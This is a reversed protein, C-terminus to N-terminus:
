AILEQAIHQLHREIRHWSHQESVLRRASDVLRRRLEANGLLRVCLRAFEVPDDAILLHRDHQVELGECGVTTSVVPRGLAFAELIKLRTGSGFRLPVVCMTAQRYYPEVSPADAEVFVAHGDHLARVEPVPARGVILSRLRPIERQILPQITRTFFRIADVNAEYSLTGVQLVTHGDSEDPLPHAPIEAGNPVVDVAAGGLANRDRESCVLTRDFRQLARRQYRSLRLLDFAELGRARATRPPMVALARCRAITEVDDLDLVLRPRPPTRRWLQEVHSVMMLRSVHVLSSAPALQGIVAAVEPSHNYSVGYPRTSALLRTQKWGPRAIGIRAAAAVPHIQECTTALRALDQLDDQDRYFCVLHVPAVRAYGALLHSQRMPTGGRPGPPWQTVYVIAGAAM